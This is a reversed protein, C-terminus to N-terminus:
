PQRALDAFKNYEKVFVAQVLGQRGNRQKAIILEMVANGTTEEPQHLLIAVDADQEINGSERLDSLQPRRDAKNTSNRNLQCLAILPVKYERAILKLERSIEGVQEHRKQRPDRGQMLQLYDVVVLHKENPFANKRARVKARIEPITVNPKDYIAINMRKLGEAASELLEWEDPGFFRKPSRMKTADIREQASLMRKIQAKDRMELAFLTCAVGNEAAHRMSHLALATKGVSPRAGVIIFDEDQWGATYTDLDALGTPIGKMEGDDDKLEQVVEDVRTHFDYDEQMGVEELSTLQQIAVGIRDIDQTEELERVLQNAVEVALRRRWCDLVLKEYHKFMRTSPVLAVANQVGERDFQGISLIDVRKGKKRLELMRKFMEQHRPIFFHEPVINTEGLFSDDM